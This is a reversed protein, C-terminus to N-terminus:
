PGITCSQGSSAMDKHGLHAELYLPTKPLQVSVEHSSHEIHGSNNQTM